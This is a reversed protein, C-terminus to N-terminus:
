QKYQPLIKEYCMMRTVYVIDGPQTPGSVPHLLLSPKNYENKISNIAYM